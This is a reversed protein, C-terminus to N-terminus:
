PAPFKLVFASKCNQNRVPATGFGFDFDGSFGGSLLVNGADDAEVGLGYASGWTGQTFRAPYTRDTVYDRNGDFWVLFPSFAEDSTTSSPRSGGGFDVTGYFTSAILARGSGDLVFDPPAVWNLLADAFSHQGLLAGDADLKTLLLQNPPEVLPLGSSLLWVNGAGDVRMRSSLEIFAAPPSSSRAWSLNGESGLKVLLTGMGTLTQSDVFVTGAFLASVFVEDSGNVAVEVAGLFESDLLRPSPPSGSNKFSKSWLPAGTSGDLKAVFVAAGYPEWWSHETSGFRLFGRFSGGFIVNGASDVTMGEVTAWSLTNGGFSRVWLLAGAPSLKAVFPSVVGASTLETGDVRLGVRFNGAVLVNGAGDTALAEVDVPWDPSGESGAGRQILKSWLHQGNANRKTVFLDSREMSLPGGGLNVTGHATGALLVNGGSDVEFERLGACEEGGVAPTLLWRGSAYEDAGNCNEDGPATYSEQRPLRQGTCAANGFLDCSVAGDRCMGVDRTEVAGTYCSTGELDSCSCGENVQGDCDEDFPLRCTEAAPVVEGQCASWQTGYSNCQQRGARCRGEDKTGAPGRYPCERYAGPTCQANMELIAEAGRPMSCDGAVDGSVTVVTSISGPTSGAFVKATHGHMIVLCARGDPGTYTRGSDGVYTIGLADVPVNPVPRGYKDVVSVGINSMEWWFTDCNWWTFHSVEAVWVLKGPQTQSPQVTGMGEERWHGAELDFWWAPVTDGAQFRSTVSDPLEFELTAKAGPALQLPAGDRWLSVEAMFHSELRVVEESGNARTGKLPGPMQDLQTTPDLPVITAEVVGTVPQGLADVVAAAPITVRVGQKALVAGEEAQFSIPEGLPLLVIEYGVHAGDRLEAVATASTYGRAQVKATFRGAELDELLLRGAGDTSFVTQGTSIVADPIPNGASDMVELLMSTGSPETGLDVTYCVKLKPRLDSHPSESTHVLTKGELQELLLGQNSDPMRVWGAVLGAVDFTRASNHAPAEVSAATDPEYASGFSNWTVAGETWPGTVAHARLSTPRGSNMQWVTLTASSLVAAQPISSTDFRLLVQEVHGNGASIGAVPEGGFNKGPQWSSLKADAVDGQTGRQFTVCTEGTLAQARTATEELRSADGCGAGGLALLGCLVLVARLGPRDWRTAEHLHQRNM